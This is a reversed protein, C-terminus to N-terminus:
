EKGKGKGEDAAPKEDEVKILEGVALRAKVFKTEPVVMFGSKNYKAKAFMQGTQPDTLQLNRKEMKKNLKIKVRNNAM